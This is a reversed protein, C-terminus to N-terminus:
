IETIAPMNRLLRLFDLERQEALTSALGQRFVPANIRSPLVSADDSSIQTTGRVQREIEGVFAAIQAAAGVAKERELRVIAQKSEEYSFYIEATSSLILVVSILLLLVVLYKRFLRGKPVLENM